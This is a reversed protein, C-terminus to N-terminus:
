FMTLYIQRIFFFNCKRLGKNVCNRKRFSYQVTQKKLMNTAKNLLPKKEAKELTLM